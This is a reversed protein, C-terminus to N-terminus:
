RCIQERPNEDLEETGEDVTIYQKRDRSLEDLFQKSLAFEEKSIGDQLLAHIKRNRLLANEISQRVEKIGSLVSEPLVVERALEEDNYHLTSEKGDSYIFKIDM